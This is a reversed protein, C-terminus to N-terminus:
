FCGNPKFMIFINHALAVGVGLLMVVSCTCAGSWSCNNENFQCRMEKRGSPLVDVSKYKVYLFLIPVFKITSSVLTVIELKSWEGEEYESKSTIGVICNLLYGFVIGLETAVNLWNTLLAYVTAEAGDPIVILFMMAM